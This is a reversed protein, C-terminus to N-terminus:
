VSECLNEGTATKHPMLGYELAARQRTVLLLHTFACKADPRMGRFVGPEDERRAARPRLLSLGQSEGRRRLAREEAPPGDSSCGRVSAPPRGFCIPRDTAGATRRVAGSPAAGGDARKKWSAAGFPTQRNLYHLFCKGRLNLFCIPYRTNPHHSIRGSLISFPHRSAISRLGQAAPILM